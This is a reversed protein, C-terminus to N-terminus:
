MVWAQGDFCYVKGWGTRLLWSSNRFGWFFARHLLGPALGVNTRNEIKVSSKM